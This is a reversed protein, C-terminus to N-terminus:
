YLLLFLIGLSLFFGGIIFLFSFGNTKKRTEIYDAYTEHNKKSLPILMTFLHKMVYGIGHFSGLNALWVLLGLCIFLVGPITFGDSLAGIIKQRDTLTFINRISIVTFFIATAVLFAILYKLFIARKNKEM